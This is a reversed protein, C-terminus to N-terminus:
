PVAITSSQSVTDAPSSEDEAYSRKEQKTARAVIFGILGGLLAPLIWGGGEAFLPVFNLWQNIEDVLVDASKIADFVAIVGAGLMAGVYVARYGGFFGNLMVLLILTIALPYLLMLLPIATELVTTLGFNTFVLGAVAFIYVWRRYSVKPVTNGFYESVSALCAINTTIGTLFVVLGM